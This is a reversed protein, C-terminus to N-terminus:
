EEDGAMMADVAEDLSTFGPVRSANEMDIKLRGQEVLLKPDEEVMELYLQLARTDGKMCKQALAVMALKEVTYDNTDPNGGTLRINRALADTMEPKMALVEKLYRRAAGKRRRAIGSAKGGNSGAKAAEEGSKFQFPVGNKLNEENAM